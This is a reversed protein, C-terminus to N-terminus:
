GHYDSNLLQILYPNSNIKYDLHAIINGSHERDPLAIYIQMSDNKNGYVDQIAGKPVVLQYRVGRSFSYNNLRCKVPSEMSFYISDIVVTDKFLLAPSEM